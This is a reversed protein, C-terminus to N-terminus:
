CHYKRAIQIWSSVHLLPFRSNRRLFPYKVNEHQENIIESLKKGEILEEYVWMKIENEFCAYKKANKGLIIALASARFFLTVHVFSNGIVVELLLM